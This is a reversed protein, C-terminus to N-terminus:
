KSILLVGLFILLVGVYQALSLREDLFFYNALLVTTLSCATTLMVTISTAADQLNPLMLVARNTQIFLARSLIALMMSGVFRWNLVLQFVDRVGTIEQGILERKGLLVISAATSASFAVTWLIVVHM